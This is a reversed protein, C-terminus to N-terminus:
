TKPATHHHASARQKHVLQFPELIECTQYESVRPSNGPACVQSVLLGVVVVEWQPFALSPNFSVHDIIRINNKTVLYLLRTKAHIHIMPLNHQTLAKSHHTYKPHFYDKKNYIFSVSM